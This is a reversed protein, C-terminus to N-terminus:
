AAPVAVTVVVHFAIAFVIHRLSCFNPRVEDIAGSEYLALSLSLVLPPHRDTPPQLPGSSPREAARLRDDRQQTPRRGRIRAWRCALVRPMRACRQACLGCLARAGGLRGYSRVREMSVPSVRSLFRSTMCVCGVLRM